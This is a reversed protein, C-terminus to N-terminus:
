SRDRRGRVARARTRAAPRPVREPANAQQAKCADLKKQEAEKLKEPDVGGLGKLRCLGTLKELTMLAPDDAKCNLTKLEDNAAVMFKAFDDCEANRAKCQDVVAQRNVNDATARDHDNAAMCWDLHDKANVSMSPPQAGCNNNAFDQSIAAATNAFDNCFDNMVCKLPAGGSVFSDAAHGNILSGTM